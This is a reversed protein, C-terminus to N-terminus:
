RHLMAGLTLITDSIITLLFFLNHAIQSGFLPLAQANTYRLFHIGQLHTHQSETTNHAPTTYHLTTQDPTTHVNLLNHSKTAPPGLITYYPFILSHSPFKCVLIMKWSMFKRM